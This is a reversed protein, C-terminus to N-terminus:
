VRSARARRRSQGGREGSDREAAARSSEASAEAFLARNGDAGGREFEQGPFSFGKEQLRAGQRARGFLRARVHRGDVRAYRRGHGAEAEPRAAPAQGLRRVHRGEIEEAERPRRSFAQFM